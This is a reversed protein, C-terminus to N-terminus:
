ESARLVYAMNAVYQTSASANLVTFNVTASSPTNIGQVVPNYFAFFPNKNIDHRENIFGAAGLYIYRTITVSQGLYNNYTVSIEALAAAAAGFDVDGIICEEGPQVTISALVLNGAASPSEQGSAIQIDTPIINDVYQGTLGDIKREFVFQNHNKM